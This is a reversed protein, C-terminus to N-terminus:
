CRRGIRQMKIMLLGRVKISTISLLEIVGILEIVSDVNIVIHDHSRPSQIIVCVHVHVHM